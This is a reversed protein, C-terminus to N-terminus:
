DPKSCGNDMKLRGYMYEDGSAIVFWVNQENGAKSFTKAAFSVFSAPPNIHSSDDGVIRQFIIEVQPGADYQPISCRTATQQQNDSNKNRSREERM